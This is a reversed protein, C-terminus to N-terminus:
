HIKNRGQDRQIEFSRKKNLSRRETDAKNTLAEMEELLDNRKEMLPPLARTELVRIM